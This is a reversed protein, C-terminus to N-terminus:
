SIQYCFSFFLFFGSPNIKWFDDAPFFSYVLLPLSDKLILVDLFSCDLDLLGLCSRAKLHYIWCIPVSGSGRLLLYSGMDIDGKVQCSSRKEADKKL